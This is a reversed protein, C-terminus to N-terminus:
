GLWYYAAVNVGTAQLKICISHLHALGVVFLGIHHTKMQDQINQIMRLERNEQKNLAGYEYFQPAEECPGLTGDHGPYNIPANCFTRFQEDPPTGVNKYDLGRDNALVSTFSPPGETAWEELVVTAAFKDLLYSLRAALESNLSHGVKQLEHTTGFVVVRKMELERELQGKLDDLVQNSQDNIPDSGPSHQIVSRFLETEQQLREIRLKLLESLGSLKNTM